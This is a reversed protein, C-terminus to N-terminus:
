KRKGAKRRGEIVWDVVLRSVSSYGYLKTLGKIRAKEKETCRIEIRATKKM